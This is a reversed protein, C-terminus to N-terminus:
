RAIGLAAHSASFDRSRSSPPPMSCPEDRVGLYLEDRRHAAHPRAARRAAGTLTAPMSRRRPDTRPRAGPLTGDAVVEPPPTPAGVGDEIGAVLRRRASGGPWRTSPSDCDGVARLVERDIREQLARLEILRDTRRPSSSWPRATRPRPWGPGRPGPGDPGCLTPPSCMNSPLSLSARRCSGIERRVSARRPSLEATLRGRRRGAREGTVTRGM